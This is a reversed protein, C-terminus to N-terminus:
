REKQEEDAEGYVASSRDAELEPSFADREPHGGADGHTANEVLDREAAEWGEQEGGGAQYVPDMAPDDVDHPAAGGIRAAEAAAASAERAVLVDDDAVAPIGGAFTVYDAQERRETDSEPTAPPTVSPGPTEVPAPALPPGEAAPTRAAQGTGSIGTPAAPPPTSVTGPGAAAGAGDGDAGADGPRRDTLLAGALESAGIVALPAWADLAAGRRHLLRASGLLLAGTAADILLHVPMPVRRRIGLEYDTLSSTLLTGAGSAGIIAAARRDRLVKPAALSGLGGAYDLAAHVKTSILAM